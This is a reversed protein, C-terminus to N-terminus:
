SIKNWLCLIPSAQSFGGQSRLPSRLFPNAKSECYEIEGATFVRSCFRPTRSIAVRIRDVEVLDAGVM